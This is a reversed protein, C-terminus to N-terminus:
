HPQRMVADWGDKESPYGAPDIGDRDTIKNGTADVVFFVPKKETGEKKLLLANPAPTTPAVPGGEIRKGDADFADGKPVPASPAPPIIVGEVPTALIAAPPTQEADDDKHLTYADPDADYDAKNIRLVSGGHGKVNVVECTESM